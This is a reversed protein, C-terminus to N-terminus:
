QKSRYSFINLLNGWQAGAIVGAVPYYKLPIAVNLAIRFANRGTITNDVPIVEFGGDETSTITGKIAVHSHDWGTELFVELKESPRYGAAMGVFSSIGGIKLTGTLKDGPTIATNLFTMNGALSIAVPFLPFLHHLDHQLGIGPYQFGNHSISPMGMYRLKVETYYLSFAAQLTIYPVVSIGQFEEIGARFLTSDAFTGIVNSQPDIISREIVPCSTVGFITPVTVQRSGVFGQDSYSETYQRDRSGIYVLSIPLAVGYGFEKGIFVSQFWGSNTMTGITTALPRMYGPQENIAHMTTAGRGAQVSFILMLSLIITKVTLRM